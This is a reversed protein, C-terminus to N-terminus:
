HLAEEPPDGHMLLTNAMSMLMWVALPTDVDQTTLITMMGDQPRLAVTVFTEVGMGDLAEAMQEAATLEERRPM